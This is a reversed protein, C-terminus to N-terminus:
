LAARIANIARDRFIATADAGVAIVGSKERAITKIEGICVIVEM